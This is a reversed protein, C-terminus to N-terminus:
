SSALKKGTRRAKSKRKGITKTMTARRGRAYEGEPDTKWRQAAKKGGRRGMTSLAKRESSTAKGSASSGTYAGSKSQTVYGRVRRAMTQRDRVHPM